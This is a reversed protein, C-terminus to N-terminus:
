CFDIIFRHYDAIISSLDLIEHFDFIEPFIHKKATPTLTGDTEVMVTQADRIAESHKYFM